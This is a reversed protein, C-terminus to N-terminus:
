GFPLLNSGHGRKRITGRLTNFGHAIADIQDDEADDVGTFVTAENILEDAWTVQYRGELGRRRVITADLPVYFKGRNWAAAVPQARTFKDGVPRVERIRLTPDIKKLMQPVAKFGGVAEIIVPANFYLGQIEKLKKVLDPVQLHDRWGHVAFCEMEDAYGRAFLVFAASFDNRTDDTAAPDCCVLIRMGETNVGGPKGFTALSFRAPFEICNFVDAGKPRPRQQFLSAWSYPGISMEIRKLEEAPFRSPWLADGIQRGLIDDDDECIAPLRIREFKYGAMDGRLLRGIMDDEHWRTHQVICSGPKANIGPPPQLRTWFTDTLWEWINDRIKKSEAAARDKYPDDILGVGDIGQGTWSGLYGHFLAGGGYETRWEHLNAMEKSIPVGGSRTLSRAIRSRSAAYDDSFTAFANTLTPDRHLRWALAHLGTTTNHTPVCRDGVVYCHSVHDVEICQGIEPSCPLISVISRMRNVARHRIDKRPLRAPQAGDTPTWSVCWHDKCNDFPYDRQRPARYEVTVRYGISSVLRAVDDILRRNTNVFRCRGSPDVCGDSDILGQLLERRQSESATYYINPVFKTLGVVSRVNMGLVCFTVCGTTAHISTAGISYGRASVELKHHDVDVACGTIRGNGTSGDGLWLGFVYPDIPLQITAGIAPKPTEVLFRGRPSGDRKTGYDLGSSVIEHTEVTRWAQRKRDFVRWLHGPNVRIEEHDAFRVALTAVDRPSVYTITTPSGDPAYVEDGVVLDGHTRWGIPTLIPTSDAILKAHRPPLEVCALVREYRTREWLELIPAIHDPPPHAPSVRMIYDRLSEGNQDDELLSALEIEEGDTWADPRRLEPTV